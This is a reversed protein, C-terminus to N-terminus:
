WVASCIGPGKGIGGGAKGADSGAPGCKGYGPPQQGPPELPQQM